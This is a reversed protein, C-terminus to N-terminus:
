IPPEIINSFPTETPQFPLIENKILFQQISRGIRKSSIFLNKGDGVFLGPITMSQRTSRNMFVPDVITSIGLAKFLKKGMNMMQDGPPISLIAYGQHKLITLANGYINGLFILLDPQNNRPIRHGKIAIEIGGHMRLTTEYPLLDFKAKQVLMALASSRDKPIVSVLPADILSKEVMGMDMFSVNQWFDDLSLLFDAQPFNQPLIITKSNDKLQVIPTSSLNIAFDKRRPGPLYYTGKDLLQGQVMAAYNRIKGMDRTQLFVNELRHLPAGVKVPQQRTFRDMDNKKSLESMQLIPVIVRGKSQHPSDRPDIRKLPISIHQGPRITDPNSIHPNLHKFITLFLPFDIESLNGKKRFIKYIWDNKQVQYPECLIDTGKWTNITFAKYATKLVRTSPYCRDPCLIMGTFFCIAVLLGSRKM